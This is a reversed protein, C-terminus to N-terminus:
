PAELLVIPERSTTRKALEQSSPREFYPDAVYCFMFAMATKDKGTTNNYHSILEYDHAAYVPIGDSGSYHGVEALGEGDPTPKCLVKYVSKNETVDRLELSEAYGHLHASIYHIRTDFKFPRRLPTTRVDEGPKVIWHATMMRGDPRRFTGQGGADEACGDKPMSRAQKDAVELAIGFEVLSLAKMPQHADADSIFETEVQHRVQVGVGAEQLNLVQSQLMLREASSVPIGFGPPFNLREQGQSLTFLRRTRYTGSGLMQAHAELSDHLSLTNHCMFQSSMPKADKADIMNARYGTIWLLEPPGGKKLKVNVDTNDPGTMSPYIGEVAVPESIYKLSQLGDSVALRPLILSTAAGVLLALLGGGM